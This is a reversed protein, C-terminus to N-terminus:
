LRREINEIKLNLNDLKINFNSEIKELIDAIKTTTKNNNELQEIFKKREEESKIREHILEQKLQDQKEESEDKQIKIQERYYESNEELQLQLKGELTEAKKLMGNFVDKAYKAIAAIFILLFMLLIWTISKGEFIELSPM